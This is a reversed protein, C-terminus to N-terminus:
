LYILLYLFLLTSPLWSPLQAAIRQLAYGSM